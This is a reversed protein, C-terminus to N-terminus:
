LSVISLWQRVFQFDLDDSVCPMMLACGYVLLLININDGLDRQGRVREMWTDTVHPAAEETHARSGLRRGPLVEAM